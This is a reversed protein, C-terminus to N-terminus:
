DTHDQIPSDASMFPVLIFIDQEVVIKCVPDGAPSWEKVDVQSHPFQLSVATRPSFMSCLAPSGTVGVSSLTSFEKGDATLLFVLGGTVGASFSAYLSNSCVNKQVTTNSM